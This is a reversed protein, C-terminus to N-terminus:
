ATRGSPTRYLRIKRVAADVMRPIARSVPGSFGEGPGTERVRMLLFEVEPLRLDLERALLFATAFDLDRFAPRSRLLFRAERLDAEILTGASEEGGPVSDLVLARDYKELLDFLDGGHLDGRVLDEGNRGFGRSHLEELAALGVGDDRMSPIGFGLVLIRPSFSLSM